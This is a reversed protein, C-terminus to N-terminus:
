HAFDEKNVWPMIPTYQLGFLRILRFNHSCVYTRKTARASSEPNGGDWAIGTQSEREMCKQADGSIDGPSLKKGKPCVSLSSPQEIYAVTSKYVLAPLAQGWKLYAIGAEQSNMFDRAVLM